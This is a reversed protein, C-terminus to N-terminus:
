AALGTGRAVWPLIERQRAEFASIAGKEAERVQTQLTAKEATLHEVDNALESQHYNSNSLTFGGESRWGEYPTNRPTPEVYHRMLDADVGAGEIRAAELLEADRSGWVGASALRDRDIRAAVRARIEIFSSTM